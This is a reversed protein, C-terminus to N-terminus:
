GWFRVDNLAIAMDAKHWFRVDTRGPLNNNKGGSGHLSRM